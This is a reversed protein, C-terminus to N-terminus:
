LAIATLLFELDEECWKIGEANKKVKEEYDARALMVRQLLSTDPNAILANIREIEEIRDVVRGLRKSYCRLVALRHELARRMWPICQEDKDRRECFCCYAYYCDDPM